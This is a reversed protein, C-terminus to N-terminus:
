KPSIRLTIGSVETAFDYKAADPNHGHARIIITLSEQLVAEADRHLRNAAEQSVALLRQEVLSLPEDVRVPPAPAADM